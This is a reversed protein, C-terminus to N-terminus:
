QNVFFVTDIFFLAGSSTIVNEDHIDELILGLETNYYDNRRTHMFGNFELFERVQDLNVPADSVIFDQQLAAQIRNTSKIFGKLEYHTSSFLLNHILVSTLFDLWTAYYVADNLKTVYGEAVNFYVEAEGGETLFRDKQSFPSLWGDTQTIFDGLSKAQEEKLKLQRDFDTKVKTNPSFGACLHNRATTCYDAQWDIYKGSIIDQLKDATDDGYM